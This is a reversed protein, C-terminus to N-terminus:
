DLGREGAREGAEREHDGVDLCRGDPRSRRNRHLSLGLPPLHNAFLEIGDIQAILAPGLP